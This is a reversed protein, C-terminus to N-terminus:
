KIQEKRMYITMDNPHYDQRITVHPTLSRCFKEMQEPLVAFDDDDLSSSQRNLSNFALGKQCLSFMKEIMLFMYEEGGQIRKAFIGSAVVYDYLPGATENELINRTFFKTDPFRTAAAKVLSDTIDIGTYDVNIGHSQFWEYLDGLGCGIDLVSDDDGVGIESLIKFRLIQSERSGWDLAKFSVGHKSLLEDYTAINEQDERGWIKKKEEM